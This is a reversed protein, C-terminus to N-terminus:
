MAGKIFALVEDWDDSEFATEADECSMPDFVVFRAKGRYERMDENAYDIYVFLGRKPHYICPCADNHWSFDEFGNPMPPFESILFDPFETAFSM